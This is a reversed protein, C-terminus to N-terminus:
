ETVIHRHDRGKLRKAFEYPIEDKSRDLNWLDHCLRSIPRTAPHSDNLWWWLVTGQRESNVIRREQLWYLVKHVEAKSRQAWRAIDSGSRGAESLSLIFLVDGEVGRIFESLPNYLQQGFIGPERPM